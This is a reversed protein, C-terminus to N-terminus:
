QCKIVFYPVVKNPLVEAVLSAKARRLFDHEEDHYPCNTIAHEENEDVSTQLVVPQLFRTGATVHDAGLISSADHHEEAHEPVEDAFFEQEVLAPPYEDM